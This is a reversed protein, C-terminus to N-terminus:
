QVTIKDLGWYLVMILLVKLGLYVMPMGRLAPFTDLILNDFWERTFLLFLVGVIIPDKYDSVNM